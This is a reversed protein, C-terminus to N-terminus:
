RVQQQRQSNKLRELGNPDLGRVSENVLDRALEILVPYYPRRTNSGDDSEMALAMCSLIAHAKMLRFREDDIADELTACVISSASNRTPGAPGGRRAGTNKRPPAPNESRRAQM